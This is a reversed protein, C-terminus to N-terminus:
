AIERKQPDTPIKNNNNERWDDLAQSFKSVFQNWQQAGPAGAPTAERPLTADMKYFPSEPTATALNTLDQISSLSAQLSANKAAQTPDNAHIKKQTDVLDNFQAVPMAGYYQNLDLKAFGDRDTASMGNLQNYLNNTEETAPPDWAKWANATAAKAM